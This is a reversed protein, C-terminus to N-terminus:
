VVPRLAAGHGGVSSGRSDKSFGSAETYLLLRQWNHGQPEGTTLSSDASPGIHRCYAEKLFCTTNFSMELELASFLNIFTDIVSFSIISKPIVM